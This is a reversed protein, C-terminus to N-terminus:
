FKKLLQGAEYEKFGGNEALESLLARAKEKEGKKLCSLALYWTAKSAYSESGNRVTEFFAAAKDWQKTELCAIGAFFRAADNGPDAVLAAEFLPLSAAFKGASYSKVASEFADNVPQTNESSRLNLPIDNQYVAYFQTYLADNDMPRFWNFYGVAGIVVVAAVAVLRAMVRAPTLQRIKASKEVSAAQHISNFDPLTSFSQSGVEEVGEVADSCLPCDLLHNEVRRMKGPTLEGELYGQLEERSLCNSPEFIHHHLNGQM